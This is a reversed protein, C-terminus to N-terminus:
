EIIGYRSELYKEKAMQCLASKTKATSPTLAERPEPLSKETLEQGTCPRQMALSRFHTCSSCHCCGTACSVGSHATEEPVASPSNGALRTLM